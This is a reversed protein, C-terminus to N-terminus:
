TTEGRFQEELAEVKHALQNVRKKLQYNEYALADFDQNSPVPLIKLCDQLVQNQMDQYRVYQNVVENLLDSFEQSQFLVMFHGELTKMWMNYYEQFTEPYGDDGEAMEQIKKHLDLTAKEFPQTLQNMFQSFQNVFLTGNDLLQNIRQQRFREPGLPPFNLVKKWSDAHAQAFSQFPDKQGEAARQAAQEAGQMWDQALKSVENMGVQALNMSVVPMQQLTEPFNNWMGSQLMANYAAHALQNWSQPLGSMQSSSQGGADEHDIDPAVQSLAQNWTQWFDLFSSVWNSMFPNTM